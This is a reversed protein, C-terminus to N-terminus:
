KAEEFPKLAADLRTAVGLEVDRPDVADGYMAAFDLSGLGMVKRFDRAAAVLERVEPSMAPKPQPKRPDPLRFVYCSGLGAELMWERASEANIFLNSTAGTITAAMYEQWPPLEPEPEVKQVLEANHIDTM